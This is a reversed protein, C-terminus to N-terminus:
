ARRPDRIWYDVSVQRCNRMGSILSPRNATWKIRNGYGKVAYRDKLNIELIELIQTM